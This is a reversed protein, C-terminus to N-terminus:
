IMIEAMAENESVAALGDTRESVNEGPNYIM